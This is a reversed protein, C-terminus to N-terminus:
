REHETVQQQGGSNSVTVSNSIPPSASLTNPTNSLLSAPGPLPLSATLLNPTMPTTPTLPPNPTTPTTPNSSSGSGPRGKWATRRCKTRRNQFWIKIQNESLRLREALVHRDSTSLYQSQNFAKELEEIQIGSFTPRGKRSMQRRDASLKEIDTVKSIGEMEQVTALAMRNKGSGPSKPNCGDGVKFQVQTSPLGIQNPQQRAPDIVLIPFTKLFNVMNIFFSHINICPEISNMVLFYNGPENGVSTLPLDGFQYNPPICLLVLTNLSANSVNNSGNTASQKTINVGSPDDM